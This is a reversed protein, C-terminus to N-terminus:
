HAEAPRPAVEITCSDTSDPIKLLAASLTGRMMTPIAATPIGNCFVGTLYSSGDRRLVVCIEVMSDDDGSRTTM